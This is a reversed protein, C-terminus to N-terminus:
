VKKIEALANARLGKDDMSIFWQPTARFIVPSKHRWCHPYSHVYPEHALLNKHERLVEIIHANAEDVREGAFLEVSPLFRGDNGVPNELPLDNEVGAAFDEHGHGPATHVAGTGAELTVHDGLIVPVQRAYFPHELLLGALAAGRVAGIVTHQDMGYRPLSPDALETAFLLLEDGSDVLVYEFEPHLAVAQNGPLTWPTTTWSAVSVRKKPVDIGFRQALDATDAVPFRIDIGNSKKDHYEVEAEALASRCDLCWHVPKYGNYVHGNAIIQAFARLQAAEFRKDLTLYPNEWDGLVGLRKFDKRQDDVQRLAYKRSAQRFERANLKKGVRGKKKEVMLEIPLGHCDWGPVYPADFGSLTRSKVVIDKLVKNVAHGIHIKGNAYPPGDVLVFTPRGATTERIKQYIGRREWDALMGPERNALNARMPFATQPLNLTDKYETM